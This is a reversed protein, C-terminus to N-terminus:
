GTGTLSSADIQNSFHPDHTGTQFSPTTPVLREVYQPVYSLISPTMQPIQIEYACSYDSVYPVAHSPGGCNSTPSAWTDTGGINQSATSASAHSLVFHTFCTDDLFKKESVSTKRTLFPGYIYIIYIYILNGVTFVSFIRDIVLFLDDSNKPTFISM